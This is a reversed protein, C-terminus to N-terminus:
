TSENKSTLQKYLMESLYDETSEATTQSMHKQFFFSVLSNQSNEEDSLQELGKTMSKLVYMWFVSSFEKCKQKLDAEENQIARNIKERGPNEALRKFADVPAQNTIKM